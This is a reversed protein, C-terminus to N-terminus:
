EREVATKYPLGLSQFISAETDGAIRVERGECGQAEIKFLGSGDAHLVMGRRRALICLEINHRASGTRILLLTAWTGTTAVYVDLDFGPSQFLACRIVKKGGLKIQGLSQLAVVFQGQNLPICVLDIDHVWPRQRRISGAIEIRDCYPKLKTVVQDAVKRAKDLEM